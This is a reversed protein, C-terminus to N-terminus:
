FDPQGNVRMERPAFVARISLANQRGPKSTKAVAKCHFIVNDTNRDITPQDDVDRPFHFAAYDGGVEDSEHFHVERVDLMRGDPLELFATERPDKQADRLIRLPEAGEVTIVFDPLPDARLPETGTTPGRLQRLRQQALRLTKSSWWQVSVDPLPATGGLAARATTRRDIAGRPDGTNTPLTRPDAFREDYRFSVDVKSKAPSWPSDQLIQYVDALTWQQPPKSWVEDAHATIAVLLSALLFVNALILKAKKDKM